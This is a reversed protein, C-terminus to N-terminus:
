DEGLECSWCDVQHAIYSSSVTGVDMLSLARQGSIGWGRRSNLMGTRLRKRIM